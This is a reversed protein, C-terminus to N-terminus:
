VQMRMIEQYAEVAKNRLATTLEIALTAKAAAVTYDHVNTLEGTALQEAKTNAQVEYSQLKDLLDSFNGIGNAPAAGSLGGIDNIPSIPDANLASSVPAIPTSAV